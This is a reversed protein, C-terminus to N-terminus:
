LEAADSLDFEADTDAHPRDAPRIGGDALVKTGTEGRQPQSTTAAQLVM